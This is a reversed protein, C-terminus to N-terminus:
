IQPRLPARWALVKKIKSQTAEKKGKIWRRTPSPPVYHSLAARWAFARRAASAKTAYISPYNRLDDGVSTLCFARRKLSVLCVPGAAGLVDNPGWKRVDGM